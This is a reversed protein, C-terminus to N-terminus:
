GEKFLAQISKLCFGSYGEEVMVKNRQIYKKLVSEKITEINKPCILDELTVYHRNNFCILELLIRDTIQPYEKDIYVCKDDCIKNDYGIEDKAVCDANFCQKKPEIGFTDFFQKELDTTMIRGGTLAM